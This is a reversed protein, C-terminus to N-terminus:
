ETESKEEDRKHDTDETEDAPQNNEEKSDASQASIDTIEDQLEDSAKKFERVGKGLGRAMEPLKNAGFILLIIAFIIILETPGPFGIM